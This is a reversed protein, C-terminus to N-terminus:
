DAAARKRLLSEQDQTLDLLRGEKILFEIPAGLNLRHSAWIMGLLPLTRAYVLLPGDNTDMVIQSFLKSQETSPTDGDVPINYYRMGATETEARHLQAIKAPTGVDIVVNFGMSKLESIRNLPRGYTAQLYPVAHGPNLVAIGFGERGPLKATNKDLTEPVPAGNPALLDERSHLKMEGDGWWGCANSPNPVFAIFLMLFFPMAFPLCQRMKREWINKNVPLEACREDFSLFDLPDGKNITVGDPIM